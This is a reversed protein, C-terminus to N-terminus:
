ASNLEADCLTPLDAHSVSIFETQRIRNGIKQQLKKSSNFM